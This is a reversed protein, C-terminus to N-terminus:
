QSNVPVGVAARVRVIGSVVPVSVARPLVVVPDPLITRAVEGVSTVGVSPTAVAVLRFPKVTVVVVPVSVSAFPLVSAVDPALEIVSVDVPLVLTVSGVEPVSTSLPAAKVLLLKSM